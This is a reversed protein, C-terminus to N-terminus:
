IKSLAILVISAIALLIGLWNKPILKEKFAIIAVFTSLMVVGINNVTFIGSSEMFDSRLAGVLCYVSFFNPIGLAIGGIISKAEFHLTGKLKQYLLAVLGMSGAAYFLVSSFVAVDEPAVFAEELFKIGTDIIGSGLFVLLPYILNKKQITIGHKNKISTLYVAVLALLIGLGKFIGLSEHYYLLGFLIPIVVSMKTAVSVVSLGSRQTTLAMLFFITIFFSGLALAYYFWSFQPLAAIKGADSQMVFGFTGAVLYNVVIAQFNHIRFREFLKFVVLIITSALISFLLSIM